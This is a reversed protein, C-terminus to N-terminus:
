FGASDSCSDGCQDIIESPVDYESILRGTMNFSRNVGRGSSQERKKEGSEDHGDHQDDEDHEGSDDSEGSQGDDDFTLGVSQLFAKRLNGNRDVTGYMSVSFAFEEAYNFWSLFRLPTGSTYHLLIEATQWEGEEYTYLNTRLVTGNEEISVINLYASERSRKEAYSLRVRFWKGRWLEMGSLDPGSLEITVSKSMGASVNGADDKAWAYLTKTGVSGFTYSTPARVTWGADSASPKMSSENVLYASVAVNDTADFSLIEVTLSASTEPLSFSTIVPAIADGPSDTIILTSHQGGVNGAGDKAWAYLNKTGASGFTYSTPAAATWGAATASPTAPNENVMYGDIGSADTASVSIAVTLTQSSAPTTFTVAPPTTDPISITIQRSQGGVNGAGDKAWAYLTKTGPSGFMYSTPAAAAWGAATASPKAPNENVMYGDIGSADTASVSIAVTLTQSSAPATFTVAPPTTDGPMSGADGPNTGANIEMINSFGDGDSDLNEIATLSHPNNGAYAQGYPNLSFGGTHCVNCDNSISFPSSPYTNKFSTMYSNIGFALTFSMAIFAAAPVIKFRRKRM